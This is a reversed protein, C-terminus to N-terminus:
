FLKMVVFIIKKPLHPDLFLMSFIFLPVCTYILGHCWFSFLTSAKFFTQLRWSIKINMASWNQTMFPFFPLFFPFLFHFILCFHLRRKLIWLIFVCSQQCFYSALFTLLFLSYTLLYQWRGTQSNWSIEPISSVLSM